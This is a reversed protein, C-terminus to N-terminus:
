RKELPEGGTQHIAKIIEKPDETGEGAARKQIDAKQNDTLVDAGKDVAKLVPANKLDPQAELEAVRKTLTSNTAMVKTIAEIVDEGDGLGMAKSLDARYEAKAVKQIDEASAAKGTGVNKAGGEEAAEGAQCTAGLAVSHDHITQIVQQDGSNNRAGKKEIVASTSLGEFYKQFGEIQEATWTTGTAKQIDTATAAAMKISNDEMIESSIFTKLKDVVIQLADIQDQNIEDEGMEGQLLYMISGLANLATSSDYVEEGMYKKIDMVEAAKEAAAPPGDKDIKDKWAAVIKGKITKLEDAGYKSSNKEQNIYSWAARIHKETDVPYKKNKTDAYEVDGYKGEDDDKAGEAKYVDFRCEPNAPRDVLSIETLNMKTITDDVKAIRSGGLSFGKYVGTVVKNWAADDVVHAAVYLGKDDIDASKTVGVASTKSHMERLNAWQMYEGLAETVAAKSIREKQTDLAETSAYGYVMHEAEDFKQIPAFVVVKTDKKIKM